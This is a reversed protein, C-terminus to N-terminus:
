QAYGGFVQRFQGVLVLLVGRLPSNCCEVGDTDGSAVRIVM